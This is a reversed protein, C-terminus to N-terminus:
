ADDKRGKVEKSWGCKCEKLEFVHWVGERGGKSRSNEKQAINEVWRGGTGNM